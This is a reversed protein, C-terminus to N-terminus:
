EEEEEDEEANPDELLGMMINYDTIAKLQAARAQTNEREHRQLITETPRIVKMYRKREPM